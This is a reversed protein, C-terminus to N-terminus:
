SSELHTYMGVSGRKLADAAIAPLPKSNAEAIAPLPVFAAKVIEKPMIMITAKLHVVVEGARDALVPYSILVGAKLCESVGFRATKVDALQRMGFAYMGSTNATVSLVERASRMHMQERAFGRRFVNSATECGRLRGTGSTFVIDLQWVEGTEFTSVDVKQPPEAGPVRRQIIAQPTEPDAFEVRHSLVGEVANVGYAAAVGELADTVMHNTNGPRMLRVAAEHAVRVAAFVDDAKTKIPAALADAGGVIVTTAATALFGCITVGLDIHVIDGTALTTGDEAAPSNHVAVNNVSICTPFGVGHPLRRGKSEKSFATLSLEKIRADSEVCLKYVSAGAVCKAALEQIAQNTFRGAAKYKMVVEPNDLSVDEEEEEMMDLDEEDEEDTKWGDDEPAPPKEAPLPM